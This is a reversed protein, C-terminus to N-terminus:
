GERFHGLTPTTALLGEVRHRSSEDVSVSPVESYTFDLSPASTGGDAFFSFDAGVEAVAALPTVDTEVSSRQSGM